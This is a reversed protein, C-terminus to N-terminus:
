ILNWANEDSFFVPNNPDELYATCHIIGRCILASFFGACTHLNDSDWPGGPQLSQFRSSALDRFISLRDTDANVYDLFNHVAATLEPTENFPPYPESLGDLLPYLVEYM